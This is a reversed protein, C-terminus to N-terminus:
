RFRWTIPPFLEFTDCPLGRYSASREPGKSIKGCDYFDVVLYRLYKLRHCMPLQFHLTEVLRLFCSYVKLKQQQNLVSSIRFCRQHDRRSSDHISRTFQRNQVAVFIGGLKETDVIIHHIFFQWVFSFSFFRPRDLRFPM